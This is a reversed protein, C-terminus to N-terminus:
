GLWDAKSLLDIESDVQEDTLAPATDYISLDTPSTLRCATIPTKALEDQFAIVARWADNHTSVVEWGKSGNTEVTFVKTFDEQSM